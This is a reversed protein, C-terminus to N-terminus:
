AGTSGQGSADSTWYIFLQYTQMVIFLCVFGVGCDVCEVNGKHIAKYVLAYPMVFVVMAFCTAIFTNTANFTAMYSYFAYAYFIIGVITFAFYVYCLNKLTNATDEIRRVLHQDM